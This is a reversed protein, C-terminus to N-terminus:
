EASILNVTIRKQYSHDAHLFRVYEYENMRLSTKTPRGLLHRIAQPPTTWQLNARGQREQIRNKVSKVCVIVKNSIAFLLEFFDIWRACHLGEILSAILIAHHNISLCLYLSFIIFFLFIFNM